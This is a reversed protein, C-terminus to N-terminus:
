DSLTNTVLLPSYIPNSLSQEFEFQLEVHSKSFGVLKNLNKFDWLRYSKLIKHSKPIWDNKSFSRRLKM